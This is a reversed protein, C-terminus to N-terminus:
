SVVRSPWNATERELAAQLTRSIEKQWRNSWKEHRAFFDLALRLTQWDALELGRDVSRTAEDVEGLGAHALGEVFLREARFDFDSARRGIPKGLRQQDFHVEMSEDSKAAMAALQQLAESFRGNAVALEARRLCLYSNNAWIDSGVLRDHEELLMTAGAIREKALWALGFFLEAGACDLLAHAAQVKNWSYKKAFLAFTRYAHLSRWVHGAILHGQAFLHWVWWAGPQRELIQLGLEM